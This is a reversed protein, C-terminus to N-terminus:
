LIPGLGQGTRVLLMVLQDLPASALVIGFVFVVRQGLVDVPLDEQVNKCLRNVIMYLM